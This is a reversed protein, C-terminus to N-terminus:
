SSIGLMIGQPHNVDPQSAQHQRGSPERCVKVVETSGNAGASARWLGQPPVSKEDVAASSALLLVELFWPNGDTARSKQQKLLAKEPTASSM